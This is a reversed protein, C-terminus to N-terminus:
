NGIIKQIIEMTPFDPRGVLEHALGGLLSLAANGMFAGAIIATAEDKKSLEKGERNRMFKAFYLMGIAGGAAFTGAEILEETFKIDAIGGPFKLPDEGVDDGTIKLIEGQYQYYGSVLYSVSIMFMRRGFDVIGGGLRSERIAEALAYSVQGESFFDDYQRPEEAKEVNKGPESM